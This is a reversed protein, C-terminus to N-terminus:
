ILIASISEFQILDADLSSILLTGKSSVFLYVLISVQSSFLIPSASRSPSAPPSGNAMSESSRHAYGGRAGLEGNSRGSPHHHHDDAGGGEERGNANGM